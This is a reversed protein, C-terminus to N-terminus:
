FLKTQENLDDNNIAKGASPLSTPVFKKLKERGEEDLLRANVVKNNKGRLTVIAVGQNDKTTKPSVLETQLLVAKGLATEILINEEKEIYFAAVLPSKNCYAKVLKKRNQKTEYAEMPVKSVKGNEFVFIMFGNYNKTVAMYKVAEEDEMELKVPIFEGMVSTKTDEFEFGRAKYVNCKDSFFLLSDSNMGVVHQCIEDGEKLKHAGSMRLSAPIIKKYYGEKSIFHNVEYDEIEDEESLEEEDEAYSLITKRKQGYKESVTELESIIIDDLREENELIDELDAISKKLDDEEKTKKLIYERNLNRLKIEAVFEAQIEDIGFGIMLNPIVQDEKPTKRVIKVAKDIDLLIKKLGLVLHLRDKQKKLTFNTRRRVCSERFSLWNFLIEKVGMTKPTNGILINFNCSFSDELTTLRYLKQMLKDPDQARKVDIAIKLGNLDTEDRIDSIEKIKGLKVLDCVKDIIAEITTTPPIEYIEICSNEKDYNYRARIKFSGRGTKYISEMKDADYLLMGGGPFDPAKLTTMINHEKNKILQITTECVESLNFPCISSAMGVAIGTNANVLVSPFTVPLLTPETTENDYNPVFDVTDKDIDSFLETAIKELKVETYRSAAYAMDRSYAKGFNGKSDVFPHLLTENGSALRVMTEYIAADGHPNLEMTRGVVNASKTRGKQLLGMKFMTYLLKRHSPKFGDIEPIARSVIVSMAYPMYNTELTEPIKQKEVVGAKAIFANKNERHTNNQKQLKKKPPM